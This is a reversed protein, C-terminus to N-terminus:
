FSLSLARSISLSLSSTRVLKTNVAKNQMPEPRGTPTCNHLCVYDITHHANHKLKMVPISQIWLIYRSIDHEAPWCRCFASFQSLIRSVLSYSPCTSPSHPSQLTYLASLCSSLVALMHPHSFLHFIAFLPRLFAWDSFFPKGCLCMQICISSHVYLSRFYGFRQTPPHSANAGRWYRVWKWHSHRISDCSPLHRLTPRCLGFRFQASCLITRKNCIIVYHQM